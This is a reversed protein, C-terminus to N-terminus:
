RKELEGGFGPQCMRETVQGVHAANYNGTGSGIEIDSFLSDVGGDPPM